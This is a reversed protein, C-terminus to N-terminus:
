AHSSNLRTSKRDVPIIQQALNAYVFYCTYGFRRSLAEAMVYTIRSIGGSLPNVYNDAIYILNM